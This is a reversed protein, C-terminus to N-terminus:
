PTGKEIVESERFVKEAYTEGNSAKKIRKESEKARKEKMWESQYNRRKVEKLLKDYVEGNLILWGDEVKEIRRGEHPQPELRKTDPSSLVVLGDLAESEKINARRSMQYATARVVNDRDRMMLMAVWLLRVHYPEEWVSSELIKNWIPTWPKFGSGM